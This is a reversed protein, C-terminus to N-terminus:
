LPGALPHGPGSVKPGVTPREQPCLAPEDPLVAQATGCTLCASLPTENNKFPGSTHSKEVYLAKEEGLWSGVTGAARGLAKSESSLPSSGKNYVLGWM